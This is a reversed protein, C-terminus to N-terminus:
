FYFNGNKTLYATTRTAYSLLLDIFLLLLTWWIACMGHSGCYTSTHAEQNTYQTQDDIYSRRVRVKEAAGRASISVLWSWVVFLFFRHCALVCFIFVVSSSSSFSNFLVCPLISLYTLLFNVVFVGM